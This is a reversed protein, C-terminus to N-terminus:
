TLGKNGKGIDLGLDPASFFVCCLVVCCCGKQFFSIARFQLELLMVAKWSANATPSLSGLEM